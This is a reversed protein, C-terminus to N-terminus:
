LLCRLAAANGMLAGPAASDTCMQKEDLHCQLPHFHCWRLQAHTLLQYVLSTFLSYNKLSGAVNLENSPFCEILNKKKKTKEKVNQLSYSLLVWM